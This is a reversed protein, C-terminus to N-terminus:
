YALGVSGTDIDWEIILKAAAGGEAREDNRRFATKPFYVAGRTVLSPVKLPDPDKEFYWFYGVRRNELVIPNQEEIYIYPFTSADQYGYDVRGRSIVGTFSAM